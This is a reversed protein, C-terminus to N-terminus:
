TTKMVSGGKKKNVSNREEAKIRQFLSMITTNNYNRLKQPKRVM